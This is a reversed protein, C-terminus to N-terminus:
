SLANRIEYRGHLGAQPDIGDAVNMATKIQEIGDQGPDVRVM